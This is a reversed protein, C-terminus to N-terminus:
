RVVSIVVEAAADSPSRGGPSLMAMAEAAAARQADAAAADTMLRGVADALLDGRCNEQLFEPMAERELLLNVLNFYMVRLMRRVIAATVPNVRYAIVSPVASLALELAVTGSAALAADAAAMADYKEADGAVLMVPMPWGALHAAVEDAVAPVTPVVVRLAPFRAHLRAVAEAFPPLHRRIEGRRSGPLVCLLPADPAIGRTTRFRGGDAGRVGSELVPHGVFTAALGAREFFPPEFPLLVMLHDLVAAFKRARWPRWAWVTPAVYHIKRTPADRIRRLVGFCFSPADITVVVDPRLRRIAAATQGMRRLLRVARPLVEAIGMVSLESMPFLSELGESAMCPGGIGAFEAGSGSQRRIAAMLRAGLADGSPEGAILFVRLPTGAPEAPGDATEAM